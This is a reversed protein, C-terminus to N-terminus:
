LAAGFTIRGGDRVGIVGVGFTAALWLRGSTLSMTPGVVGWSVDDGTLTLESYFEAGFRFDKFARVSVGAGPRFEVVDAESTFYEHIGGLDVSALFRGNRYTAVVDAEYRLGGPADIMRKAGVRFMVTVPGADVPDPSQPRWRLEGGFRTFQSSPPEIKDDLFEAELPVALELHPTLSFVPGFWWNFENEKTDGKQSTTLLWTELEVGKEPVLEDSYLWGFRGRGASAPAPACLVLLVAIHLARTM